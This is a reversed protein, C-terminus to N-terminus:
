FSRGGERINDSFVWDGDKEKLYEEGWGRDGRGREQGLLCVTGGNGHMLCPTEDKINQSSQKRIRSDPSAKLSCLFYFLKLNFSFDCNEFLTPIKPTWDPGPGVFLILRKLERM